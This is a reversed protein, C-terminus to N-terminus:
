TLSKRYCKNTERKSWLSDKRRSKEVSTSGPTSTNVTSALWARLTSRARVEQAANVARHDTSLAGCRLLQLSPSMGYVQLVNGKMVAVLVNVLRKVAIAISATSKEM